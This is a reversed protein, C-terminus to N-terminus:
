YSEMHDDDHCYDVPRPQDSPDIQSPRGCYKCTYMIVEEPTEEIELM